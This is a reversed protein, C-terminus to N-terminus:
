DFNQMPRENLSFSSLFKPPYPRLDARERAGENPQLVQNWEYRGRMGISRRRSTQGEPPTMSLAFIFALVCILRASLISNSFRDKTWRLNKTKLM